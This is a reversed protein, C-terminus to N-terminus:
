ARAQQEKDYAERVMERLYISFAEPKMKPWAFLEPELLFTVRALDKPPGPPRGVRKPALTTNM